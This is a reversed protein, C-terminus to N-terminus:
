ELCGDSITEEGFRYLEEDTRSLDYGHAISFIVIADRRNKSYLDSCNAHNLLIRMEHLDCGLALGLALIKDRSAGRDGSFIQYGFTENLHAARIVQAKRLGKAELLTALYAPLDRRTWEGPELFTEPARARLIEQLLDDTLRQPMQVDWGESCIIYKGVHM